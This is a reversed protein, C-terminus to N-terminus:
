GCLEKEVERIYRYIEKRKLIYTDRIGNNSILPPVITGKTTIVKGKYIYINIWKYIKKPLQLANSSIIIM